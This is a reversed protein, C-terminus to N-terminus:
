AAHPARARIAMVLDRTRSRTDSQAPAGVPVFGSFDGARVAAAFRKFLDVTGAADFSSVVAREAGSDRVLRAGPSTPIGFYLVPRGAALCEFIKMPVMWPEPLAFVVAVHAAALAALAEAPTKLGAVVIGHDPHRAQYALIEAQVEPEIRGVLHLEVPRGVHARFESWGAL